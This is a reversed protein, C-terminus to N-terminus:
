IQAYAMRVDTDSNHNTAALINLYKNNVQM